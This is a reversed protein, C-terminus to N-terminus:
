SKLFNNGFSQHSGKQFVTYMRFVLFMLANICECGSNLMMVLGDSSIGWQMLSEAVAVTVSMWMHEILGWSVTPSKLM